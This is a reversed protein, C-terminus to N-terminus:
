AAAEQDAVIVRIADGPCKGLDCLASFICIAATGDRVRDSAFKQFLSKM